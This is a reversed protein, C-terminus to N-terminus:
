AALALTRLEEHLSEVPDAGDRTWDDLYLEHTVPPATRLSMSARPTAPARAPGSSGSTHIVLYPADTPADALTPLWPSVWVDCVVYVPISDGTPTRIRLQEAASPTFEFTWLDRAQGDTLIGILLTLRPDLVSEAPAHRTLPIYDWRDDVKKGDRYVSVFSGVFRALDDSVHRWRRAPDDIRDIGKAVQATLADVGRHALAKHAAPVGEASARLKERLVYVYLGGLLPKAYLEVLAKERISAYQDAYTEAGYAARLVEERTDDVEGASFLVRPADPDYAGEVELGLEVHKSQINFDQGSLAVYLVANCRVVHSVHDRVPKRASDNMWQQIDYDTAVLLARDAAHQHAARACGHMKTLKPDAGTDTFDGPRILVHVPHSPSGNAAQSHADEILPDWNTTVVEKLVGEAILLAIFRHEADPKKNPDDYVEDVKILDWVLNKVTGGPAYHTGLVASYKNQLDKLTAERKDKPWTSFREATNVGKVTARGIISDIAQRAPDTPDTPDAADQHLADLLITLAGWLNPYRDDSIRSGAWLSVHGRLFRLTFTERVDDLRQLAEEFRVDTLQDHTLAM